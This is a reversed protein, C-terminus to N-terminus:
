SEKSFGWNEGYEATAELITLYRAADEVTMQEVSSLREQLFPLLGFSAHYSLGAIAGQKAYPDIGPQSLLTAVTKLYVDQDVVQANQDLLNALERTTQPYQLYFEPILAMYEDVIDPEGHNRYDPMLLRDVEDIATTFPEADEERMRKDYRAVLRRILARQEDNSLLNIDGSARAQTVLKLFTPDDDAQKLAELFERGKREDSNIDKSIAPEYHFENM